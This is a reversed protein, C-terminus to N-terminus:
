ASQESRLSWLWSDLAAAVQAPQTMLAWNTTRFMSGKKLLWAERRADREENGYHASGDVEVWLNLSPCYFDVVYRGIIYQPYWTYETEDLIRGMESEGLTPSLRMEYAKNAIWRKRDSDGAREVDKIRLDRLEESSALTVTSM